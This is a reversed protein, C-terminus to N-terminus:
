ADRTDLDLGFQACEGPAMQCPRTDFVDRDNFAVTGGAPGAHAFHVHDHHRAGQGEDRLTKQRLQAHTASEGDDHAICRDHRGFYPRARRRMRALRDLEKLGCLFGQAVCQLGRAECESIRAMLARSSACHSRSGWAGACSWNTSTRSGHSNWAQWRGPETNIGMPSIAVRMSSM